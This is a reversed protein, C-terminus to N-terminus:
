NFLSSIFLKRRTAHLTGHLMQGIPLEIGTTIIIYLLVSPMFIFLAQEDKEYTLMNASQENLNSVDRSWCIVFQPLKTQQTRAVPLKILV